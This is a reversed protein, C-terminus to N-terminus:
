WFKTKWTNPGSYKIKQLNFDYRYFYIDIIDSWMRTKLVLCVIQFKWSTIRIFERFLSHSFWRKLNTVEAYM